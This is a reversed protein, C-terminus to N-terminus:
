ENDEGREIKPLSALMSKRVSWHAWCLADFTRFPDISNFFSKPVQLLSSKRRIVSTFPLM